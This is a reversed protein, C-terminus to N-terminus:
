INYEWNPYLISHENWDIIPVINFKFNYDHFNKIKENSQKIKDFIINLDNYVRDSLENLYDTYITNYKAVRINIKDWKVVVWMYTEHYGIGLIILDKWEYYNEILM